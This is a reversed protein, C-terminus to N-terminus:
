AAAGWKGADQNDLTVKFVQRSQTHFVCIGEPRMFGPVAESGTERLYALSDGVIGETLPGHYLVPVTTVRADGLTRYLGAHRDTNFLSFTRREGGYGRGIGEGWWEGFHLGAGLLEVLAASNDSVWQAFGYNDTGKGPYILRNRSQAQVVYTGPLEPNEVIHIAANTGDLKETIVVYRFFRPTKPWPTFEVLPAPKPAPKPADLVADVGKRFWRAGHTGSDINRAVYGPVAVGRYRVTETM